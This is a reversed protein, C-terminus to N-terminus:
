QNHLGHTDGAQSGKTRTNEPSESSPATSGAQRGTTRADPDPLREPGADCHLFVKLNLTVGLQREAEAQALSM